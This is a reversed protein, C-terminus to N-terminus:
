PSWIDLHILNIQSTHTCRGSYHGWTSEQGQFASKQVWVTGGPGMGKDHHRRHTPRQQTSTLPAVRGCESVTEGYAQSAAGTLVQLLAHPLKSRGPAQSHFGTEGEPMWHWRSPHRFPRERWGQPCGGLTQSCCASSRRSVSTLPSLIWICNGWAWCTGAPWTGAPCRRLSSPPVLRDWPLLPHQAWIQSGPTCLTTPGVEWSLRGPQRQVTIGTVQGLIGSPEMVRLDLWWIQITPKTLYKLPCFQSWDRKKSM